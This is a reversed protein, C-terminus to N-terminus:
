ARQHTFNRRLRSWYIGRPRRLFDLAAPAFGPCSSKLWIVFTLELCQKKGRDSRVGSHNAVFELCGGGLNKKLRCFEETDPLLVCCIHILQQYSAHIM